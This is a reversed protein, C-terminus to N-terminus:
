TDGFAPRQSLRQFPRQSPHLAPAPAPGLSPPATMYWVGKGNPLRELLEAMTAKEVPHVLRPAIETMPLLVFRRVHLRPHPVQVGPKEIVEDGYLLVDIDLTRSETTHSDTAGPLRVRGLQAEIELCGRLLEGAEPPGELRAVCNVYWPHHGDDEESAIEPETLYLSSVGSVELGSDRMAELGARLFATRNGRNSGLGLYAQRAM